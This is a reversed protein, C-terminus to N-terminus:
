LMALAVSFCAILTATGLSAMLNACSVAPVIQVKQMAM